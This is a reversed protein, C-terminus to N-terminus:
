SEGEGEKSFAFEDLWVMDPNLGKIEQRTTDRTVTIYQRIEPVAHAEIQAIVREVTPKDRRFHFLWWTDLVDRILEYTALPMEYTITEAPSVQLIRATTPTSLIDSM